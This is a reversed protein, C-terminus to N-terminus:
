SRRREAGRKAKTSKRTGSSVIARIAGAGAAPGEPLRVDSPVLGIVEGLRLGPERQVVLSGAVRPRGAAAMYCALLRCPACSLPVTHKIPATIAWGSLATRCWGLGGKVHPMAFELAAVTAEFAARRPQYENKFEM